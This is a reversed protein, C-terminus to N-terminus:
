ERTFTGVHFGACFACAYAKMRKEFRVSDIAAVKEAKERTEHREKRVCSNLFMRIRYRERHIEDTPKRRKAM